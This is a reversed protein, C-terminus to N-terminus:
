LFKILNFSSRHLPCLGHKKIAAQHKATGYGKHKAFGYEPFKLSLKTMLQDRYVKAIISAAAISFCDRDGKKIPTQNKKNFHKIYFADILLHDPLVALDKVAKRFAMQTAKGIGVRNIVTVSIEAISWCVAQTKIKEALQERQKPLLLKSDAIGDPIQCGPSFVVAGVVVPGAFCGRGVEDIGCVFRKNSDWFKQELKSSAYIM